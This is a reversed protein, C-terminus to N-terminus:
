AIGDVQRCSGYRLKFSAAKRAPVPQRPLEFGGGPTRMEIAKMSKGEQVVAHGSALLALPYLENRTQMNWLCVDSEFLGIGCTSGDGQVCALRWAGLSLSGAEEDTVGRRSATKQPRRFSKGDRAVEWDEGSKLRVVLGGPLGKVSSVEGSLQNEMTVLGTPSVCFVAGSKQIAVFGDRQANAFVGAWSLLDLDPESDSVAAPIDLTLPARSNGGSELDLMALHQYHWKLIRGGAVAFGGNWYLGKFPLEEVHGASVLLLRGTQLPVLCRTPDEMRWAALPSSSDVNEPKEVCQLAAECLNSLGLELARSEGCVLIRDGEVLVATPDFYDAMKHEWFSSAEQSDGSPVAQSVARITKWGWVLAAGEVPLPFFGDLSADWQSLGGYFVTKGSEDKVEFGSPLVLNFSTFGWPPSINRSCGNSGVPHSLAERTVSVLADLCAANMASTFGPTSAVVTRVCSYLKERTDTAGIATCSLSRNWVGAYLRKDCAAM